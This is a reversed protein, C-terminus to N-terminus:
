MTTVPAALRTTPGFAGMWGYKDHNTGDVSEEYNFEPVKKFDQGYPLRSLVRPMALGVYRSDESERFSKWAAGKKPM